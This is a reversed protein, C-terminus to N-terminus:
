DKRIRSFIIRDVDSCIQHFKEFIDENRIRLTTIGQNLFFMDRDRDKAFQKEQYHIGGDVEIIMKAKPIYFDVIFNNM